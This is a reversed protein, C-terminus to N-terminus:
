EAFERVNLLSASQSQISLVGPHLARRSMPAPFPYLGQNRGGRPRHM